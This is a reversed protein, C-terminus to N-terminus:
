AVGWVRNDLDRQSLHLVLKWIHAKVSIGKLWWFERRSDERSMQSHSLVDIVLISEETDISQSDVQWFLIQRLRQHIGCFCLGQWDGASGLAREGIGTCWPSGSSARETGCCWDTPELGPMWHKRSVGLLSPCCIAAEKGAWFIPLVRRTQQSWGQPSLFSTLHPNGPLSQPPVHPLHRSVRRRCSPTEQTSPSFWERKGLGESLDNSPM